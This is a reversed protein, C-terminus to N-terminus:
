PMHKEHRQIIIDVGKHDSNAYICYFEGLDRIGEFDRTATWQNKKGDWKILVLNDARLSEGDAKIIVRRVADVEEIAVAKPEAFSDPHSQPTLAEVKTITYPLGSKSEIIERVMTISLLPSPLAPLEAQCDLSVENMIDPTTYYGEARGQGYLWPKKASNIVGFVKFAPTQKRITAKYSLTQVCEQVIDYSVFENNTGMRSWNARVSMKFASFRGNGDFEISFDALGNIIYYNSNYIGPLPVQPCVISKGKAQCNAAVFNRLGQIYGHENLFLVNSWYTDKMLFASFPYGGDDLGRGEWVTPPSDSTLFGSKLNQHRFIRNKESVQRFSEEIINGNRLILEASREEPITAHFDPHHIHHVDQDQQIVFPALAKNNSVKYVLKANEVSTAADAKNIQELAKDFFRMAKQDKPRVQGEASEAAAAFSAEWCAQLVTFMLLIIVIRLHPSGITKQNM